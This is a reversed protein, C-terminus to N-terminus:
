VTKSLFYQWPTIISKYFQHPYSPYSLKGQSSYFRSDPNTSGFRDQLTNEKDIFSDRTNKIMHKLDKTSRM